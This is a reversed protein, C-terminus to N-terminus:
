PLLARVFNDMSYFLNCTNILRWFLQHFLFGLWKIFEFLLSVCGSGFKCLPENMEQLYKVLVFYMEDGSSRTSKMKCLHQKTAAAWGTGAPPADKEPFLAALPPDTAWWYIECVSCQGTRQPFTWVPAARAYAFMSSVQTLFLCAKICTKVLFM